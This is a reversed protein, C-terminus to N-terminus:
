RGNPTRWEHQYLGAARMRALMAEAKATDPYMAAQVLASRDGARFAEARARNLDATRVVFVGAAAQHLVALVAAAALLIQTERARRKLVGALGPAALILLGVHLPSLLVAYRLPATLPQDPGHRGIAAMLATILSFQILQVAIREARTAEEGGKRLIAWGGLAGVVLGLLWGLRPVALSWPLGLYSLFMLGARKLGSGGGGAAHMAAGGAQGSFYALGFLIGGALIAQGLMRNRRWASFALVPWIALGAGNGFAAGAACALALVLRGPTPAEGDSPTALLIAAVSLALAEIYITCIHATADLIGGPLLVLAAAAGGIVWKLDGEGAQSAARALLAATLALLSVGVVVFLWGSAGFLAADAWLILFTFVLRHSIHPTLLYAGLKGDGQFDQYRAVWDLMDSYPALVPTAWVLWACVTLFAAAAIALTVKLGKPLHPGAAPSPDTESM